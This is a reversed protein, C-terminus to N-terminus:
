HENNTEFLEVCLECNQLTAELEEIKGKLEEIKNLSANLEIASNRSRYQHLSRELEAIWVRLGVNENQNELLDRKLVDERVQTDLGATRMSLRLKKYNIKLSDLDEKAKNKGKRMKEAELKQVDVDLELQTKEEELFKKKYNDGKYEFEFQALEPTAPIFKRSRYQRLVLLHAYGIAGWIGLLPVQLITM